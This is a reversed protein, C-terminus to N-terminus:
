SMGLINYYFDTPSIFNPTYNDAKRQSLILTIHLIPDNKTSSKQKQKLYKFRLEVQINLIRLATRNPLLAYQFEKKSATHWLNQLFMSKLFWNGINFISLGAWVLCALQHNSQSPVGTSLSYYVCNISLQAHNSVFVTNKKKKQSWQTIISWYYIACIFYLLQYIKIWTYVWSAKM